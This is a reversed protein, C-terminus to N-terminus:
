FSMIPIPVGFAGMVSNAVGGMTNMAQNQNQYTNFMGTAMNALNQNYAQNAANQQNQANFANWYNQQMNNAVPAQGNIFSMLNNIGQQYIDYNIKQQDLEFGQQRNTLDDERGVLWKMMDLNRGWDSVQQQQDYMQQQNLFSAWDMRNSENQQALQRDFDSWRQRNAENTSDQQMLATLGTKLLDKQDMARGYDVENRKLQDENWYQRNAENVANQQMSADLQAGTRNLQDANWYQRNSENTVDQQMRADLQAGTRNLQDANWYQRNSENTADQQMAAGLAAQNRNLQNADWYQRNSENAANQQMLANLGTQTRNLQEASLSQGLNNALGIAENQMQANRYQDERAAEAGRLAVDRQVNAAEKMFRTTLSNDDSGYKELSEFGSGSLGRRNFDATSQRIAEQYLEKLPDIQSAALDKLYSSDYGERFERDLGDAAKAAASQSLDNQYGTIESIQPQYSQEQYSGFQNKTLNAIQPSYNKMQYSGNPNQGLANIMSQYDKQQYSGNPNQGLANIMNQYNQQQYTGYQNQQASNAQIPSLIQEIMKTYDLGQYGANAGASIPQYTGTTGLIPSATPATPINLTGAQYSEEPGLQSQLDSIQQQFNTSQGEYKNLENLKSELGSIQSAYPDTASAGVRSYNPKSPNYGMNSTNGFNKQQQSAQQNRWNSQQARLNEIQSELSSRTGLGAASDINSQYQKQLTDIQSQLGANATNQQWQGPTFSFGNAGFGSQSNQNAQQTPAGDFFDMGPYTNGSRGGNLQTPSQGGSGFFSPQQQGQQQGGSGGFSNGYTIRTQTPKSANVQPPKTMWGELVPLLTSSAQAQQPTQVPASNAAAASSPSKNKKGFISSVAGGIVPGAITAALDVGGM